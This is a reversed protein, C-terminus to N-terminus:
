RQDRMNDIITNLEQALRALDTVAESSQTMSDSTKSSIRNIEDMAHSIQESAASQEESATAISHVQDATEQIMGVIEKLATGADEVLETSKSIQNSTAETNGISKRTSEQIAAISSAVENTANMTKEALKRVEDAVVAFGRGADGARAAEIAANLALLNTQDAIDSIVNMIEGIGEAQEGLHTMDSKLEVAKSNIDNITTIVSAVIDAGDNAKAITRDALEAANSANNAVEMVTANMQEMATAAESTRHQQEEAGRSAQEVQASLEEAGSAAQISVQNADQAAQGINKNQEEILKQQKKIETLDSFLSFGAILKGDLDYMPASDIQIFVTNGKRTKTELQINQIARRERISKGTSTPHGEENYFFLSLTQGYYDEPKGDYELVDLIAQNAFIIKEDTDIVVCSITMGDLLGQAFGLKHKLEAVMSRINNALHALEYKFDTGLSVSFDGQAVKSTFSEINLIPRVILKRVIFIILGILILIVVIGLGILVDRQAIATEALESPYTSMCIIWGTAPVQAFTMLKEEGHWDYYLMGNKQAIADHIFKHGPKQGILKKETAHAIFTGEADIIFGYGRKGFRVNDIFDHTFLSWKPFVAVGGIFQGANDLVAHSVAFILEKKATNAKFVKKGFYSKKGAALAKAYPRASVDIGILSQGADDVGAVIKGDKNFVLMSYYEDYIRLNDKMREHCPGTEGLELANKVVKQLALTSAINQAEDIYVGLSKRTNDAFQEISQTSLKLTIDYSSKSVYFVMITIAAIIAISSSLVLVTSVSKKFM